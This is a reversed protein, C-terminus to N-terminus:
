DFLPLEGVLALGLAVLLVAFTMACLRQVNSVPSYSFSLSAKFIDDLDSFPYNYM